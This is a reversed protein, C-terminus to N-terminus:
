PRPRRVVSVEPRLARALAPDLALDFDRVKAGGWAVGDALADAISGGAALGACLGAMTADGAGIPNIPVQAPALLTWRDVDTWLRAGRRGATVILAAPEPAADRGRSWAASTTLDRAGALEATSVKVVDPAAPLAARLWVGSADLMSRAGVERAVRILRAYLDQPVNPPLSGALVLLDNARLGDLLMTISAEIVDPAPGPAAGNVVTARGGEEVCIVDTRARVGSPMVQVTALSLDPEVALAQAGPEDAVAVLRVAVGMRGCFRAVNVGKGGIREVVRTARHVEGPALRPMGLILEHATTPSFIVIM